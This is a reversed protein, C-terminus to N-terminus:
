NKLIDQRINIINCVIELVRTLLDRGHLSDNLSAELISHLIM